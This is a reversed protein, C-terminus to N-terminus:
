RIKWWKGSGYGGGDYMDNCMLIRWSVLRQIELIRQVLVYNFCVCVHVCVCM